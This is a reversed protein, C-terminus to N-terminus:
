SKFMLINTISGKPSFKLFTPLAPIVESRCIRKKLANKYLRKEPKRRGKRARFYHILCNMLKSPKQSIMSTNLKRQKKKKVKNRQVSREIYTNYEHRNTNKKEKRVRKKKKKKDLYVERCNEPQLEFCTM